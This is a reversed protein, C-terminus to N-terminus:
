GQMYAAGYSHSQIVCICKNYLSIPGKCESLSCKRKKVAQAQCVSLAFTTSHAKHEEARRGRRSWRGGLVRCCSPALSLAVLPLPFLSWGPIGVTNHLNVSVGLHRYIYKFTNKLDKM